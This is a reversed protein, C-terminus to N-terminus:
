TKLSQEKTKQNLHSKGEDQSGHPHRDLGHVIVWFHQGVDLQVEEELADVTLREGM